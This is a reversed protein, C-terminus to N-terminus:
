RGGDGGELVERWYRGGDGGEWDVGDEATGFSARFFKIELEECRM